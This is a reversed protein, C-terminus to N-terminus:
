GELKEAMELLKTVTNWNRATGTTKLTREFLGATLKSRGMGNPYYVYLESGSAFVEEPDTKISLMKHRAEDGPDKGLFVVALKNPEIGPRDAFPNRRKVDQIEACTRLVVDSHFGFTAEIASELRKRLKELDREKSRFVVNGSQVYTQPRDLGLTEYLARLAEMKLTNYGGLNVARLLSIVVAM